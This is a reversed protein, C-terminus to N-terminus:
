HTQIKKVVDRAQNRANTRQEPTAFSSLSTPSTQSPVGITRQDPLTIKQEGRRVLLTANRGYGDQLFAKASSPDAAQEGAVLTGIELIVDGARLGYKIDMAGGPVVTLVVIGKQTPEYTMTETVPVGQTDRGSIANTMVEAERKAELAPRVYGPNGPGGWTMYFILGGVLLLGILGFGAGKM